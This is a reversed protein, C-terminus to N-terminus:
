PCSAEVILSFLIQRKYDYGRVWMSLKQATANPEPAFVVVGHLQDGPMLTRARLHATLCHCSTEITAIDIQHSGDNLLVFGAESTGGAMTTGIDLHSPSVVLHTLEVRLMLVTTPICILFFLIVVCHSVPRCIPLEKPFLGVLCVIATMDFAAMAWPRTPLNGLCACSTKGELADRITFALFTTFTVTAVTWATRPRLGSILWFGLGLEFFFAALRVVLVPPLDSEAMPDTIWQNAKLLSAAVLIIGIAMAALRPVQLVRRGFGGSPTEMAHLREM